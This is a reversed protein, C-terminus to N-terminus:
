LYDALYKDFHTASLFLMDPNCRRQVDFPVRVTPGTGLGWCNKRLLIMSGRARRGEVSGASKANANSCEEEVTNKM